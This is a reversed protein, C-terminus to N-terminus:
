CAKVSAQDYRLMNAAQLCRHQLLRVAQCFSPRALFGQRNEIYEM